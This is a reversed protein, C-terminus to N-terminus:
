SGSPLGLRYSWESAQLTPRLSISLITSFGPGPYKLWTWMRVMSRSRILSTMMLTAATMVIAWRGPLVSPTPRSLNGTLPVGFGGLPEGRSRLSFGIPRRSSRKKRRRQYDSFDEHIYGHAAVEHGAKAIDKVSEPYREADWGPVFFTGKIGYKDLLDLVRPIGFRPAFGGWDSSGSFHKKFGYEVSEADYEFSLAVACKAGGPWVFRM